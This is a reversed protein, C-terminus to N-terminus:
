KKRTALRRLEELSKPKTKGVREPLSRLNPTEKEWASATGPKLKGQKELEYMKRQQAKSKFPM